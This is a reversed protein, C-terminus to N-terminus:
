GAASVADLVLARLRELPDGDGFAVINRTAAFSLGLDAAAGAISGGLGDYGFMRGEVGYGLTRTVEGGFTWDPGTVAVASVRRLREPSILREALETGISRGTVRRVVEGVLWGYTWVHYGQRTGPEWVPTAAALAACMRDRDTLDRVTSGAPLEPLGATHTLVHALTIDQKGNRDFGPWVEALRLDYDLVGREALVHVVTAALGKGVSCSFIPTGATLPRGTDPDAVGACLALIPEGHLYAAVQLGGAPDAAALDDVATRVRDVLANRHDIM